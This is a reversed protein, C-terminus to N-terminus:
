LLGDVDEVDPRVRRGVIMTTDDELYRGIRYSLGTEPDKVEESRQVLRLLRQVGEPHGTFTGSSFLEAVPPVFKGCVMLSQAVAAEEYDEFGDSAIMFSEVEALPRRDVIKISHEDKDFGQLLRYAFYPPANYPFPGIQFREGNIYYIGDGAAMIILEEDTMVFIVSTFFFMDQFQQGSMNGMLNLLDRIASHFSSNIEQEWHEKDWYKLANLVIKQLMYAGFEAGFETKEGSGMGDCVVGIAYDIFRNGDWETRQVLSFADQSREGKFLRDSGIHHRGVISGSSFEFDKM